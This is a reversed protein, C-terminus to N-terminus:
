QRLMWLNPLKIATVNPTNRVTLNPKKLTNIKNDNNTKGEINTTNLILSISRTLIVFFIVIRGRQDEVVTIQNHIM